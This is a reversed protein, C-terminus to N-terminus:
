GMGRLVNRRPREHTPGHSGFLVPLGSLALAGPLILTGIPDVHRIPNVTLRGREKATPDGLALATWGHAVEHFVIAIILAPILALALRLTGDM